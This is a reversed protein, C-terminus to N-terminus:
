RRRGAGWAHCRLGGIHGSVVADEARRGRSSRPTSAVAASGRRPRPPDRVRRRPGVWSLRWSSSGNSGSESGAAAAVVRGSNGWGSGCAAPRPRRRAPTSSSRRPGRVTTGAPSWCRTRRALGRRAQPQGSRASGVDPAPDAGVGRASVPQEEAPGAEAVADFADDHEAVRINDRGAVAASRARRRRAARRARVRSPHDGVGAPDGPM